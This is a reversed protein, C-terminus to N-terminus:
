AALPLTFSGIVVRKQQDEPLSAKWQNARQLLQQGSFAPDDPNGIVVIHLPHEGNLLEGPGHGGFSIAKALDVTRSGAKSSLIKRASVLFGAPLVDSSTKFANTGDYYVVQAVHAEAPRSLQGIPKFHVRVRDIEETTKGAETLKRTMAAVIANSYKIVLADVAEPTVLQKKEEPTLPRKLEKELLKELAVGGAGCGGHGQIVTIGEAIFADAMKEIHSPSLPNNELLDDLDMDLIGSGATRTLHLEQGSAETRDDGEDICGIAKVLSPKYFAEERVRDAHATVYEQWGGAEKIDLLLKGDREFYPAIIEATNHSMHEDKGHGGEQSLKEKPESAQGDNTLVAAAATSFATTKELFERRDM